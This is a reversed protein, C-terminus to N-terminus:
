TGPGDLAAGSCGLPALAVVLVLAIRISGVSFELWAGVMLSVMMLPLWPPPPLPVSSTVSLTGTISGVWWTIGLRIRYAVVCADCDSCFLVGECM